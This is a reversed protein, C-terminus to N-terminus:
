HLLEIDKSRWTRRSGKNRTRRRRWEVIAERTVRRWNNSPPVRGYSPQYTLRYRSPTRIDLGGSGRECVILGLFEAEEIATLTRRPHLGHKRLQRYPAVLNGNETGAHAMHEIELFEVLRVCHISRSRWADSELLERSHWVWPEGQPPGTAKRERSNRGRRRQRPDSRKAYSM